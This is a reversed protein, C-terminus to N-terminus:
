KHQEINNQTSNQKTKLAMNGGKNDQYNYM